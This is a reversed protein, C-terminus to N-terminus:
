KMRRSRSGPGSDRHKWEVKVLADKIAEFSYLNAHGRKGVCPLEFMRIYVQVMGRSKGLAKAIEILTMGAAAQEPKPDHKVIGKRRTELEAQYDELRYYYTRGVQKVPEIRFQKKYMAVMARSVGLAVAIDISDMLGTLDERPKDPKMVSIKSPLEAKERRTILDKDQEEVWEGDPHCRWGCYRRKSSARTM